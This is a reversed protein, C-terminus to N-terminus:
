LHNKKNQLKESYFKTEKKNKCIGCPKKKTENTLIYRIITPNKWNESRKETKRKGQFLFNLFKVRSGKLVILNELAYWIEINIYIFFILSCKLTGSIESAYKKNFNSM